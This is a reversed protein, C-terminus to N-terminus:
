FAYDVGSFIAVGESGYGIDVYGVIFPSAVGRFGVGGVKHLNAIPNDAANRFVRGVDVFPAIEFALKTSFLDLDVAKTRLEASASFLNKDVFRGRGYGRLLEPGSPISRDGGLRSLAWFPVDDGVPMYRAAVHGAFILRSGLPLFHRYDLGFFSYSTTSLFNNDAFGAYAMARFGQTPIITSDRTDYTIFLRTLLENDAGIGAQRPFAVDTSPLKPLFGHEVEVVRPQLNLKIQLAHSLNWGWATEIYGQEFTYNSEDQRRSNNGLGFFRETASRDYVVHYTTTWPTERLLGDSLIADMEREARQKGGAVFSWQRDRSPYAFVRYRAGVGVVSNYIVDPAVIRSIEGNQSTLFIPLLGYSTGSNPDTGIEPVPIFPSERPDWLDFLWSWAGRPSSEAEPAAAARTALASSVLAVILTVAVIRDLLRVV